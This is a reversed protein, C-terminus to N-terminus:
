FFNWFSRSRSVLQVEQNAVSYLFDMLTQSIDVLKRYIAIIADTDMVNDESNAIFQVVSCVLKYVKDMTPYRELAQLCM